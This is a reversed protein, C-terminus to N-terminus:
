KAKGLNAHLLYNAQFNAIRAMESLTKTKYAQSSYLGMIIQSMYFEKITMESYPDDGRKGM